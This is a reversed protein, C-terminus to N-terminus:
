KSIQGFSKSRGRRSSIYFPLFMCLANRNSHLEIEKPTMKKSFISHKSFSIQRIVIWNFTETQSQFGSDKQVSDNVETGDIHWHWTPSPQLHLPSFLISSHPSLSLSLFLSYSSFWKLSCPEWPVPWTLKMLIQLTIREVLHLIQFSWIRYVALGLLFLVPKSSFGEPFILQSFNSISKCM